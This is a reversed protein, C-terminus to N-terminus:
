NAKVRQKYIENLLEEASKVDGSRELAKTIMEQAEQRKYQLQLLITLAEEQWDSKTVPSTLNKKDRVLGFKGIKGQLKAVIEEPKHRKHGM